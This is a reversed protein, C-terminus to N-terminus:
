NSKELRGERSKSESKSSKQYVVEARLAKLGSVGQLDDLEVNEVNEIMNLSQLYRIYKLYEAADSERSYVIAIKGPATLREKSGKIYSKDIRKKIIEYRINYGGEVDFQKEDMRFKISLSNTYILILSTVQLDYELKKRLEFAKNELECMVMLQWLRLNYLHVMSFDDREVLSQGIYINFEIGDTKYREFYHPYMNQADEQRSDLHTTLVENLKSVSQEYSKRKEYVVQLKNDILTRYDSIKSKLESSLEELHLFVPYIDKKLFDLIGIEDGAKLEANLQRQHSAVRFILEDYIPLDEHKKGQVLISNIYDLQKNLDIKIATNRALSSGKIDTQAYMPYVDRFYIDDLPPIATGKKLETYYQDAAKIFRWKVAPHISTYHTQITAELTNKHEELIRDIVIEFVPIIERLKDRNVSNLDYAKSSAIELLIISDNKALIPILLISNIGRQQLKQSLGNNQTSEAYRSVDSIAFGKNERFVNQIFGECFYGSSCSIKHQEELIQSKISNVRLASLNQQGKAFISIGFTLEPLHYFERLNDQLAEWFGEGRQLLNVKMKSITEDLTVDFLNVIGFGKFIYSCPPFLKKWLDLDDYNDLLKHFDKDTIEPAHDRKSIESFDANFAIRFNKIEGTIKDPIDFFFPQKYDVKYGYYFELIMICASIFMGKEEFNRIEFKYVEGAKDLIRKLRHSLKFTYFSFPISAAKIENQSLIEPFLPDMLMEIQKEYESLKSYDQFGDRLEPYQAVEDIIKKAPLSYPHKEDRTYGEIFNIVKEFSIFIDIPLELERNEDNFSRTTM